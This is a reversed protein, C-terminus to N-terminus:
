QLFDKEMLLDICVSFKKGYAGFTKALWENRELARGIELGVGLSPTTVEAVVVNATYLWDTDREYIETDSLNTEGSASIKKDGIHETLVKGYKKLHEIIQGYLEVNNRGGSISGAFYILTMFFLM